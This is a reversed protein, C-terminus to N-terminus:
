GMIISYRVFLSCVRAWFWRDTHLRRHMYQLVPSDLLHNLDSVSKAGVYPAVATVFIFLVKQLFFKQKVHSFGTM